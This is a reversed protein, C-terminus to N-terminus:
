SNQGAKLLSRMGHKEAFKSAIHMVASGLRRLLWLYLILRLSWRLVKALARLFALAASERSRCRIAWATIWRVGTPSLNFGEQLRRELDPMHGGGYLIAIRKHGEDIARTLAECAARNREGIIVSNAEVDPAAGPFECLLRKAMFIKMAAGFDLRSLAEVEQYVSAQFIAKWPGLDEAVAKLTMAEVLTSFDEGRELQLQEFTEYDLDAHFWNDAGYDLCDGQVDLGLIGAMQRRISGTTFEEAYSGHGGLRKLSFLKGKKVLAERSIVMEYLVCDYSELEEQLTKYYEKDAIHITSVLDVQVLSSSPFRSKYSVIATQLDWSGGDSGEKFREFKSTKHLLQEGCSGDETVQTSTTSSFAVFKVCSKQSCRLSVSNPPKPEELLAKSPSVLRGYTTPSSSYSPAHTHFSSTSNFLLSLSSSSVM